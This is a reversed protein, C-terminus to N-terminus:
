LKMGGMTMTQEPLKRFQDVGPVLSLTRGNDWKMVLQGIGDVDVVTGRTGPPVPKPDGNM